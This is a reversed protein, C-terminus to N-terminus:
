VRVLDQARDLAPVHLPVAPISLGVEAARVMVLVTSWLRWLAARSMCAQQHELEAVSPCGWMGFM